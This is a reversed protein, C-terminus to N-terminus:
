SDQAKRSWTRRSVSGVDMDEMTQQSENAGCTERIFLEGPVKIEDVERRGDRIQQWLLEAAVWGMEYSPISVTTITPHFIRTFDRNDYGVIAIDGPVALGVAQIANIAGLAMLDNASFIAKPPEDLTLLNKAATYGGTYEWDGAQVLAPDFAMGHVALEDKYGTLRRQATHWGEPGNIYAIRRRGLRILHRVALSAGYYDDPVVSDKLSSGFFRHVFIYPKKSRKLAENVAFHTSEVFIIGDVPRSVLSNIMDQEVDPDWDSNVILSMYDIQKLYDQIGRVIFPVFPSLLSDVIIGITNTQDGRLSRAAINPKYGMKEAVEIIRQRTALSVPYTSRSLVRSVTTTSFGTQRAIEELTVSMILM